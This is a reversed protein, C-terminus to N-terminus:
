FSIGSSIAGTYYDRNQGSLVSRDGIYDHIIFDFRVKVNPFFFYNLGLTHEWKIYPDNIAASGLTVQGLPNRIYDTDIFILIKDGFPKVFFQLYYSEVNAFESENKAWEATLGYTEAIWSLDFGYTFYRFNEQYGHQLSSGVTLHKLTSFAVRSGAGMKGSHDLPTNTYLNYSFSHEEGIAGLIQIGKWFPDAIFIRNIGSTRIFQPGRRKLFLVPDRVQYAKGFPTYGMGMQIKFAQNYEYEGFAQSLLSGFSVEEYSRTTPLLTSGHDPNNHENRFAYSFGLSYQGVFRFGPHLDAALMLGLRTSDAVTQSPTNTGWMSTISNEFFGGFNISESLYAQTSGQRAFTKSTMEVLTNEILKLQDNLKQIEIQNNDVKNQALLQSCFILIVFCFYAKLINM